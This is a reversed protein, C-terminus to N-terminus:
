FSQCPTIVKARQKEEKESQEVNFSHELLWANVSKLEEAAQSKKLCDREPLIIVRHGRQDKPVIKDSAFTSPRFYWTNGERHKMM